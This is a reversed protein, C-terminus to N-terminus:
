NWNCRVYFVRFPFSTFSTMHQPLFYTFKKTTFTQYVRTSGSVTENRTCSVFRVRFPNQTYVFLVVRYRESPNTRTASTWVRRRSRDEAVAWSITGFYQSEVTPLRENGTAPGVTQFWSSDSTVEAEDSGSNLRFSLVWRNREDYGSMM